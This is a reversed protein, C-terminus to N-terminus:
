KGLPLLITFCSGCGVESTVDVSGGHLQAIHKVIALGLGTGGAKRSRAKDVRYFREFIRPLHEADIGQGKDIVQIVVESGEARATLRVVSDPDSYKIANDLLNTIAQELLPANIRASLDEDCEIEIRTDPKGDNSLCSTRAAELVPCVPDVSLEVTKADTSQEIKSLALLDDIIANLRDTQRSITDLFRASDAPNKKAGTQLIEVYGKIATIPTKLEHSVNAVFDKRMNELRRTQTIDNLVVVVGARTKDSKVLPSGVAQVTRDQPGRCVIEQSLPANSERLLELFQQLGPNRITEQISKGRASEFEIGLLEEAAPNLLLLNDDTDVALVGEKMSSMIAQQERSQQTITRLQNDIQEATDNLTRALLGLELTDPVPVRVTREGAAFRRTAETMQALPATIRRAAAFSVAGALVAILAAGLAFRAYVTAPAADIVSVAVSARLVAAVEGRVYVPVAAYMMTLGLSPSKRRASGIEGGLATIIEPRDSHNEMVKYDNRSDAIVAGDPSVVTIRTDCAQDVSEAIQLLQLRNEPRLNESNIERAVLRARAALDRSVQTHYIEDSANIAWISVVAVSVAAILFHVPFLKWVLPMGRKM